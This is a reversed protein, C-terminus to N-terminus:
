GVGATDQSLREAADRGEGEVTVPNALYWMFV